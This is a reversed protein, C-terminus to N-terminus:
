LVRCVHSLLMGSEPKSISTPTKASSAIFVSQKEKNVLMVGVMANEENTVLFDLNGHPLRKQEHNIMAEEVILVPWESFATLAQIFQTKDM